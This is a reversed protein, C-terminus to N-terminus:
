EDFIDNLEASVFDRKTVLRHISCFPYLLSCKELVPYSRKLEALPLFARKISYSVTSAQSDEKHLENVDRTTRSWYSGYTGSLLVVEAMEQEAPSLEEQRQEPTGFWKGALAELCNITETMGMKEIERRIYNDDLKGAFHRRYMAVDLVSRIGSGSLRAYHKEFHAMQYIYENEPTQWFCDARKPDELAHKWPDTFYDAGEAYQHEFLKHHLEVNMFPEKDFAIDKETKVGSEYGLSKMLESAREVNEQDILIDLDCMQRWDIQPYLEKMLCGKVPLVRIGAATFARIIQDRESIQTLSKMMNVTCRHNWQNFIDPQAALQKKAAYFVMQEVSHMCATEFVQNWTLNEPLAEAAEDYLLSRILEVIYRGSDEINKKEQALDAKM